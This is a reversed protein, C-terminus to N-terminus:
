VKRYEGWIIDRGLDGKIDRGMYIKRRMYREGYIEEGRIRM